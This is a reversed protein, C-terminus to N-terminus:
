RASEERPPLLRLGMIQASPEFALRLALPGGTFAISVDAVVHGAPGHCTVTVEGAEGVDRTWASWARDMQEASVADKFASTMRTRVDATRGDILSQVIERVREDWEPGPPRPRAARPDDGALALLGAQGLAGILDVTSALMAVARGRGPDVLIASCFGGDFTEALPGAADESWAM